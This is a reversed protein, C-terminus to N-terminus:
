GHRGGEFDCVVTTGNGYVVAFKCPMTHGVFDQVLEQLTFQDRIDLRVSGPDDALTSPFSSDFCWASQFVIHESEEGTLRYRVLLPESTVITANVQLAGSLDEIERSMPVLQVGPPYAGCCACAEARGLVTHTLSGAITDIHLRQAASSQNEDGLRLGFSVALSAAVSSTIITTPIKKEVLSLRRLHGCSYRERMRQYVTPPLDCELCGDTQSQSFPFVEVRGSRSDIGINIFDVRALYCLTNCRIRAEYNDVCCFLVDFTCLESLSLHDWFDGHTAAVIINQDLDRARAAAVDAKCRGVDSDRFLVSRTLNHEEILDFDFIHMEGIGLLALSKIVENGVAGAGIVAVKKKALADQSFWDILNHRHYRADTM